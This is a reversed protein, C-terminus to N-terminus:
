DRQNVKDLLAILRDSISTVNEMLKLMMQTQQENVMQFHSYGHIAIPSNNGNEIVNNPSVALLMLPDVKLFEAIQQVLDITIATEGREYKTYTAEKMSLQEAIDHAKIGRIKRYMSINRGIAKNELVTFQVSEEM